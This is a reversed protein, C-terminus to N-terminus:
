KTQGGKSIKQIRYWNHRSSDKGWYKASVVRWDFGKHDFIIDGKIQLKDDAAYLITASNFVMYDDARQGDSLFKTDNDSLPRTFGFVNPIDVFAEKTEFDVKTIQSRKVQIPYKHQRLIRNSRIM